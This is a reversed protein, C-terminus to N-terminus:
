ARNPQLLKPLIEKEALAKLLDRIQAHTLQTREIDLLKEHLGELVLAMDDVKRSLGEISKKIEQLDYETWDPEM